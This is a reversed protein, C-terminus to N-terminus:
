HVLAGPIEQWTVSRYGLPLQASAASTINTYTLGNSAQADGTLSQLSTDILVSGKNTLRVVDGVLAGSFGGIGSISIPANPAYILGNFNTNLNLNIARTGNYWIQLNQPSGTNQLQSANIQLASTATTAGDQVFLKVPSTISASGSNTDLSSVSYSGTDLPKGNLSYDVPPLSSNTPASVPVSQSEQMSQLTTGSVTSNTVQVNGNAVVDGSVTANNIDAVTTGTTFNKLGNTTYLDANITTPDSNHTNISTQKNSRIQLSPGTSSISSPGDITVESNGLFANKFYPENTIVPSPYDPTQNKLTSAHFIPEAFSRITISFIGRKATSEIVRWYDGAQVNSKPPTSYDQQGVAYIKNTSDLLPSYISSYTKFNTWDTSSPTGSLTKVRVLVTTDNFGTLYTAPLAVPILGIPCAGPPNENLQQMAYDIGVTAALRLDARYRNMAESRTVSLVLPFLALILLLSAIGFSLISILAFGKKRYKRQSPHNRM